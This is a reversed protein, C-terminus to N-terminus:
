GLIGKVIQMGKEILGPVQEQVFQRIYEEIDFKKEFPLETEFALVDLTVTGNITADTRGPQLMQLATEATPKWQIKSKLSFKETKGPMVYAGKASGHGIETGDAYIQYKVSEVDIPLLGRNAVDLHGQMTMGTSDIELKYIEVSTIEMKQVSYLYGVVILLIFLAIFGIITILRM